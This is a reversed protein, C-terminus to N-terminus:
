LIGSCISTFFRTIQIDLNKVKKLIKKTDTSDVIETKDSKIWCIM